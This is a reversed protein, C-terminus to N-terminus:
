KSSYLARESAWFHFNPLLCSGILKNRSVYLQSTQNSFSSDVSAVELFLLLSTFSPFPNFIKDWLLSNVLSGINNTHIFAPHLECLNFFLNLYFSYRKYWCLLIVFFPDLLKILYNYHYFFIYCRSFIHNHYSIKFSKTKIKTLWFINILIQIM